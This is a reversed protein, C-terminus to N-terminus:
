KQTLTQQLECYRDFEFCHVIYAVCKCSLWLIRQWTVFKINKFVVFIIVAGGDGDAVFLFLLFLLLLLFVLKIIQFVWYWWKSKNKAFKIVYIFIKMSGVCKVCIWYGGHNILDYLLNTHTNQELYLNCFWRVNRNFKPSEKSWFWVSLKSQSYVSCFFSALGFVKLWLFM